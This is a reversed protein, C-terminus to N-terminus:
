GVYVREARHSLRVLAAYDTLTTWKRRLGHWEEVPDTTLTGEIPTKM